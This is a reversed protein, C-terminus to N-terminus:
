CLLTHALVRHASRQKEQNLEALYGFVGYARAGRSFPVLQLAFRFCLERLNCIRCSVHQQRQTDQRCVVPSAVATCCDSITHQPCAAHHACAHQVLKYLEIHGVVRAWVASSSSTTLLPACFYVRDM